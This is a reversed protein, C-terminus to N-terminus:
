GIAIGFPSAGVGIQTEVTNTATNIPTVTNNGATSVYATTGNPTIAIGFPQDAVAIAPEVTNTALDIPTVTNGIENTIAQTVYATTGNPTIAIDTFGGSSNVTFTTGATNTALNIPTVTDGNGDGLSDM